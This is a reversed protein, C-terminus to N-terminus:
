FLGAFELLVYVLFPIGALQFVKFLFNVITGFLEVVVSDENNVDEVFMEALIGLRQM